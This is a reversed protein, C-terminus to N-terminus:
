VLLTLALLDDVGRDALDKNGAQSRGIQQRLWSRWKQLFAFFRRRVRPDNSLSEAILETGEFSPLTDTPM